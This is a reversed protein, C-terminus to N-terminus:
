FTNMINLMTSPSTVIDVEDRVLITAKGPESSTLSYAIWSVNTINVISGQRLGLINTTGEMLNVTLNHDSHSHYNLIEILAYSLEKYPHDITGLEVISDSDPNM